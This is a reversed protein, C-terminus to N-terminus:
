AVEDNNLNLEPAQDLRALTETAQRWDPSAHLAQWDLTTKHGHLRSLRFLSAPSAYSKLEDIAQIAGARHNCILAMDCGAHLALRTREAVTGGVAAGAMSLDDSFIAGQFGLQGRLIENLWRTSFGAPLNDVQPYIVHAPMLAPLGYHIMREFPLMDEAQIDALRRDDVPIEHHSDAAVSGHGPFHKGVAAIGGRRMGAMLARALEAVTEPDHHLARDDIVRSIGRHLDLVPAFSFDVGVARLEVGMLWGAQEALALARSPDRDHCRGYGLNAPLHTFEQRFRQVRGGEHDVAILLPPQRLAHIEAALAAVQAPSAYNRSFLIVGGILPHRLLEREEQSLQLGDIDIM